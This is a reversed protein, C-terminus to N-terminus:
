KKKEEIYFVDFKGDIANMQLIHKNKEENIELSADHPAKVAFATKHKLLPMLSLDSFNVYLFKTNSKDVVIKNLEMNMKDIEICIENEKSDLMGISEEDEEDINNINDLDSDLILNIDEGVWQTINTSIKRLYNLGDLINVIDYVRRKHVNLKESAFNLDIKKNPSEKLLVLFKKTLTFLSNELRSSTPGESCENKKPM